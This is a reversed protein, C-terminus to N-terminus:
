ELNPPEGAGKVRYDDHRFKGGSPPCGSLLSLESLIGNRCSVGGSGVGLSVACATAKVGSEFLLYGRKALSDTEALRGLIQADAFAIEALPGSRYDGLTRLCKRRQGLAGIHVGLQTTELLLDAHQPHLTINLFPAQGWRWGDADVSLEYPSWPDRFRASSGPQSRNADFGRLPEWAPLVAERSVRDM